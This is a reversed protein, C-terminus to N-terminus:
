NLRADKWLTKSKKGEEEKATGDLWFSLNRTHIIASPSLHLYEFINWCFLLCCAILFPCFFIWRSEQNEFALFFSSFFLELREEDTLSLLNKEDFNLLWILIEFVGVCHKNVRRVFSVKVDDDYTTINFIRQARISAAAAPIICIDKM